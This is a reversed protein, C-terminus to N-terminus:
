SGPASFIRYGRQLVKEINQFLWTYDVNQCVVRQTGMEELLSQYGPITTWPVARFYEPQVPLGYATLFASQFVSEGPTAVISYSNTNDNRHTTAVIIERCKKDSRTVSEGTRSIQEPCTFITYRIDGVGGQVKTLRELVDDRTQFYEARSFQKGSPDCSACNWLAAVNLQKCALKTVNDQLTKVPVARIYYPMPEVNGDLAVSVTGVPTGVAPPTGTADPTVYSGGQAITAVAAADTALPKFVIIRAAADGTSVITDFDQITGIDLYGKAMLDKKTEGVFRVNEGIQYAHTVHTKPDTYLAQQVPPAATVAATTAGPNVGYMPPGYAATSAVNQSSGKAGM